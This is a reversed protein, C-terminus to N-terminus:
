FFKYKIYPFLSEKIENISRLVLTRNVTEYASNNAQFRQLGRLTKESSYIAELKNTSEIFKSDENTLKKILDIKSLNVAKWNDVDNNFRKFNDSKFDANQELKNYIIELETLNTWYAKCENAVVEKGKQFHWVIVVFIAIIYPTLGKFTDWGDIVCDVM